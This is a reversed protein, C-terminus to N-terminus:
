GIELKAGHMRLRCPSPFQPPVFQLSPIPVSQARQRVARCNAIVRGYTGCGRNSDVTKERGDISVLVSVFRELYATPVTDLLTANTQLVFRIGTFTDMIQKVLTFNILPEGGYFILTPQDHSSASDRDLFARLKPLLVVPDPRM